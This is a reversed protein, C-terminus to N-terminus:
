GGVLLFLHFFILFLVVMYDLLKEELYKSLAFCFSQKPFSTQMVKHVAANNVTAFLRFCGLYVDMSSHMSFIHYVCM